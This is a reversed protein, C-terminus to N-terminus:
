VLWLLEIAPLFSQNVTARSADASSKRSRM